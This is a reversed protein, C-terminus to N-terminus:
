APADRFAATFAHVFREFDSQPLKNIGAAGARGGGSAFRRCLQDAGRPNAVPARVSVQFGAPMRTLVAHARRPHELALKNGLLGSIRRSWAADPLVVMAHHESAAQLETEGARYLDDALANRLVELVPEGAIFELPDAYASLARYLDAPHYNLDEVSEGYANYNLCEGLERLQALAQPSLGLPAAAALASSVLNDGFAAVVAWARHRGILVRDVLLSTCTEPSTDIHAELRPHAPIAGAYHHDFYRVHAGADLAAVLAQRNVDLSVDLVTLRDGATASCRSVLDIERKVGTILRADCPEALRLQHLACIGDADGNFIDYFAM